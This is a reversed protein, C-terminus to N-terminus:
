TVLPQEIHTLSIFTHDPINASFFAMESPCFVKVVKEQVDGLMDTKELFSIVLFMQSMIFKKKHHKQEEAM